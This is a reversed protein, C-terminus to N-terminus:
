ATEDLAQRVKELAPKLVAEPHSLSIRVYEDYGGFNQGPVIAVGKELASQAVKNGDRGPCRLFMYFGADPKAYEIGDFVKQAMQLRKRCEERTAKTITQRNELGALMAAQTFLPVNTFTIQNLEVLKKTLEDSAVLYGARWGSMCYAKSFTNTVNICEAYPTLGNSKFSLDRYAEDVLVQIKHDQAYEYVAQLDKPNYETSTPNLPSNLVILKTKKDILEFLADPQFNWRNEATTPVLKCSGGLNKAMLEFASWFPGPTVINEGPQVLIKMLGYIAWKSGPTVTTNKVEAGHLGAISELLKKEGQGSAYRTKGESIAKQAAQVLLPPTPLGPDGINLKVISKGQKELEFIRESLKYLSM